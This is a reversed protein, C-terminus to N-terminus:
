AGSVLENFTPENAVKMMWNWAWNNAGSNTYHIVLWTESRNGNSFSSNRVIRDKGVHVLPKLTLLLNNILKLEMIQKLQLLVLKYKFERLKDLV